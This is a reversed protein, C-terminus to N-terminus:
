PTKAAFDNHIIRSLFPTQFAMGIVSVDLLREQDDAFAHICFRIIEVSKTQCALTLIYFSSKVVFLLITRLWHSSYIICRM